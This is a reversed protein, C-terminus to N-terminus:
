QFELYINIRTILIAMFPIHAHMGSGHNVLDAKDIATCSGQMLSVRKDIGSVCTDILLVRIYIDM